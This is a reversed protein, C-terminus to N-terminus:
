LHSNLKIEEESKNHLSNQRSLVDGVDRKKMLEALTIGDLFDAIRDSLGEWLSHTM